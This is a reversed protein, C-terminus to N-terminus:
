EEGPPNRMLESMASLEAGIGRSEIATAAAQQVQAPKHQNLKWTGSVERVDIGPPVIMRRMKELVQPTMKDRTWPPKRFAPNPHM